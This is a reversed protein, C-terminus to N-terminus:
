SDNSAKARRQEGRPLQSPFRCRPQPLSRRQAKAPRSLLAGRDWQLVSTPIFLCLSQIVVRASYKTSQAKLKTGQAKYKAGKAQRKKKIPRGVSSPAVDSLTCLVFFWTCLVFRLIRSLFWERDRGTNSLGHFKEFCQLQGYSCDPCM